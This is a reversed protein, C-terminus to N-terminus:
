ADEHIVQGVTKKEIRQGAMSTMKYFPQGEKPIEWCHCSSLFPPMIAHWITPAYIPAGCKVCHRVIVYSMERGGSPREESTLDSSILYACRGPKGAMLRSAYQLSM